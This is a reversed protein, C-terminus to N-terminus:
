FRQTNLILTDHCLLTRHLLPCFIKVIKPAMVKCKLLLASLVTIDKFEKNKKEQFKM